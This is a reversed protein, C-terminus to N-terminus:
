PPARGDAQAPFSPVPIRPFEPPPRFLAAPQPAYAVSVAEARGSGYQPDHGEGRLVLGDRTICLRATRDEPTRVDWETCSEGAVRAEDRRTFTMRANPLYDSAPGAQLPLEFVVHQQSLVVMARDAARDVILYGPLDAPEARIRGASLHVRVAMPPRRPSGQVQYEVVADRTPVLVPREQAGVPLAALPALLALVATRGIV